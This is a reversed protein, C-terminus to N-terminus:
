RQQLLLVADRQLRVLGRRNRSRRDHRLGSRDTAIGANLTSLQSKRRSLQSTLRTKLGGIAITQPPAHGHGMPERHGSLFKQPDASFKALCGKGCFYFTTGNYEFSGAAKAPDVTMGCVPDIAM